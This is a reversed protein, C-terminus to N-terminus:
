DGQGAVGVVMCCFVIPIVIMKMMKIFLDGAPQLCNTVLWPRADPFYNLLAGLAIGTILGILIQAVLPIRPKHM